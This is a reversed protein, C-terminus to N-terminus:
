CQSDWCQVWLKQQPNCGVERMVEAFAIPMCGAGCAPDSLTIFQQDMKALDASYSIDAMMKSVGWPTFFQGARDNGLELSMYLAGLFDCVGGELGDVVMALLKTFSHLEAHNYKKVVQMYEEELEENHAVANHLSTSAMIIFDAFVQDRRHKAGFSNFCKIFEDQYDM